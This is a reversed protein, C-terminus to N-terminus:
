QLNVTHNGSYILTDASLSLNTEAVSLQVQLSNVHDVGPISQIIAYFDSEQPYRGFQWGEGKGGTLPHLFAELRQKVTNKVIDADELTIPTITTTVSVKQWTPATVVLDISAECRSRIYTEVLELLALSPIPQRDSSHPLIILKVQGARRNIAQMMTAFNNRESDNSFGQLKQDLGDQFSVDAKTPDLWVRENLPSFNATLLDPSVVKVRAVDTSAEYALDAFDEITVARDRHRLQKPIREKLRDLTEQQAGGAAAELNIVRDIYPITTKLESITESAVNGKTGGGTRYFSLRINNRGRPPIMGAQGNGFRIEGTQRDLTYHRDSAGSAYFDPVEQWLVWVEEIEGLDDQIVNIRQSELQTPIQGEQVELKQGILIPANNAIFVQNPDYNSSGLVEDSISIAQVAWITNTSFRRLRPKVRINGGQWRVRLWYLQKGFTERESFDVPAIFQILGRQTFGQTEDQVGLSQWGLPSSYEWVLRNLNTSQPPIPESNAAEASLEDPLPPEVQAYLTVTKNEFSKDFGLYLTAERDITPTFPRFYRNITINKTYSKTIKATLIVQNIASNITEIQYTESNITLFEGITLGQVADLILSKDGIAADQKLKTTFSVPYSYRFDNNACYIAKETITFEYSLKLSKIVPPDYTQPITETIISKRMIRTGIALNLNENLIGTKLTLKNDTTSIGTIQNEEPFGGTLPLLRVKDNKEFLDVTDVAIETASKIAAIRLAALDNYIPYTRNYAAKGYNGETIRARIWYRTEGNVTSPSPINQQTPFQLKAQISNGETFQIVKTTWLNLPDNKDAIEQWIQGNGIEWIIKLKNINVPKYSLNIDITITTNPKIFEDHLAIYFTDNIEPQEGFPYFDKTLDLPTANFLCVEPILNSQTVKIQGQLNTIQPLNSSINTLKVQLWKAPKGQIESVTPIALKAFNFTITSQDNIPNRGSTQALWQDGDWSYVNLPLKQLENANDTTVILQFNKLEPLNFIEPCTLYLSHPISRDGVFAFFAEDTEGTAALTRDSYKDQSPERLFVAQLQTTTVILERTTEFVIEEDSDESPPAAIQTHAPVVGDVPSGAALYFTLPVKAPQPPKLQGGLLDLFALFNKEPVQNLRDSVLKVMRGFIRILAGGADKKGDLSPKWDTSQKVLTETQEVIKEYTRQDIKPPKPTFSAM